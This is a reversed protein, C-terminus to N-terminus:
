SAAGQISHETKPGESCSLCQPASAHGSFPLSAASPDLACTKYPGASLVPITKGSSFSASTESEILVQFSATTLHTNTEEGLYCAIPCFSLAEPQVLPPKPQINPFSEEGFHRDLM